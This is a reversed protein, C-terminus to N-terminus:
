QITCCKFCSHEKRDFQENVNPQDSVIISVADLKLENNKSNRSLNTTTKKKQHPNTNKQSGQYLSNEQLLPFPSGSSESDSLTYFEENLDKLCREPLKIRLSSSQIEQFNLSM